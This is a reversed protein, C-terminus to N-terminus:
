MVCKEYKKRIKGGGPIIQIKRYFKVGKHHDIWHICHFSSIFDDRIRKELREVKQFLIYRELLSPEKSIRFAISAVSVQYLNMESDFIRM